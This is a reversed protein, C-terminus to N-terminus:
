RIQIAQVCICLCASMSVCANVIFSVHVRRIHSEVFYTNLVLKDFTNSSNGNLSLM